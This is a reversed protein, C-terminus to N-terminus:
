PGLRWVGSSSTHMAAHTSSTSELWLSAFRTVFAAAPSSAATEPAPAPAAIAPMTVTVVVCCYPGVGSDYSTSKVGTSFAVSRTDILSPETYVPSPGDKVIWAIPVSSVVTSKNKSGIM